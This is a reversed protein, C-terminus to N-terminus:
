FKTFLNMKRTIEFNGWQEGWSNRVIYYDLGNLTGYGVVNVAHNMQQGECATDYFVGSEYRYFNDSVHIGVSVPGVERVAQQLANEDGSPLIVYGTVNAVIQGANPDCVSSKETQQLKNSFIEM